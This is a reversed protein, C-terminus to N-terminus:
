MGSDWKSVSSLDLLSANKKEWSFYRVLLCTATEMQEGKRENSDLLFLQSGSNLNKNKTFLVSVHMKTRVLVRSHSYGLMWRCSTLMFDKNIKWTLVICGTFSLNYV